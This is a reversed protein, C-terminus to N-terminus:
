PDPMGGDTQARIAALNRLKQAHRLVLGHRRREAFEARVAADRAKRARYEARREDFRPQETATM